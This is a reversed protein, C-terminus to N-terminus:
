KGFMVSGQTSAPMEWTLRQEAPYWSPPDSFGTVPRDGFANISYVCPPVDDLGACHKGAHQTEWPLERNEKIAEGPFSQAGVCYTNAAPDKCVHGNWGDMHWAIRASLHVTM